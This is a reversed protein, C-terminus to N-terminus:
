CLTSISCIPVSRLPDSRLMQRWSIMNSIQSLNRQRKSEFQKQGNQQQRRSVAILHCVSDSRFALFRFPISHFANVLSYM